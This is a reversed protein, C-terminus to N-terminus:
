KSAPGESFPKTMILADEPPSLYYGKRTGVASYGSAAYLAIAGANGTRVELSLFSLGRLLAVDDMARLLSSAAGLRRYSPDVAINEIYGEDLVAQMGAYGALVGDKEAAFWLSLPDSLAHEFVAASWPDPFCRREIAEVAPLDAPLMPRILFESQM